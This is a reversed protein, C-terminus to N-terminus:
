DFITWDYDGTYGAEQFLTLWGAPSHHHQSSLSWFERDSKQADTIIPPLKCLPADPQFERLKM